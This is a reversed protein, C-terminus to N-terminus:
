QNFKVDDPSLTFDAYAYLNFDQWNYVKKKCQDIRRATLEPHQMVIAITQPPVSAETSEVVKPFNPVIANM